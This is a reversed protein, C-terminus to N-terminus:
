MQHYNCPSVAPEVFDQCLKGSQKVETSLMRCKNMQVDDCVNM